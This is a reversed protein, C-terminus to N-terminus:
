KRIGSLLLRGLIYIFLLFEVVQFAFYKANEFEGAAVVMRFRAYNRTLTRAPQEFRLHFRKERKRASSVNGL